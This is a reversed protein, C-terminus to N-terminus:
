WPHAWVSLFGTSASGKTWAMAAGSGVAAAAAFVAEAAASVAAAAAVVVVMLVATTGVATATSVVAELGGETVDVGATSDVVTIATATTSAIEATVEVM